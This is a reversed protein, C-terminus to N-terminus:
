VHLAARSASGPRPSARWALRRGRRVTAAAHVAPRGRTGRLAVLVSPLMVEVAALVVSASLAPYFPM